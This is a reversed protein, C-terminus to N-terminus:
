VTVLSTHSNQLSGIELVLSTHIKKYLSEIDTDTPMKLLLYGNSMPEFKLGVVTLNPFTGGRLEGFFHSECRCADITPPWCLSTKGFSRFECHCENLEITPPCCLLSCWILIFSVIVNTEITPPCCLLSCWILISVWLPMRWNHTPLLTFQM